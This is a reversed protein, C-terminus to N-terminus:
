VLRLSAVVGFTQAFQHHEFKFQGFLFSFQRSPVALFHTASFNEIFLRWVTSRFPVYIILPLLFYPTFAKTHRNQQQM